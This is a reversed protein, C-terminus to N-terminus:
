HPADGGEEHHQGAGEGGGADAGLARPRGRAEVQGASRRLASPTEVRAKRALTELDPVELDPTLEAPLSLGTRPLLSPRNMRVTPFGLEQAPVDGHGRRACPVPRYGRESPYLIQDEWAHATLPWRHSFVVPEARPCRM